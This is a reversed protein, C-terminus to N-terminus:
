ASADEERYNVAPPQPEQAALADVRASIAEVRQRLQDVEERSPLKLKAGARKVASELTKELEARQAQLRGAFDRSLRRVEAADLKAVEAVKNFVKEAEQEAADLGVLAQSWAGKFTERVAERIATM